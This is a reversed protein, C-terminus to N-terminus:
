NVTITNTASTSGAANSSQLIIKYSGATLNTGYTVATATATVDYVYYGSYSANTTTYIQWTYSLGGSGTSTAHVTFPRTGSTVDTTFSAVPPSVTTIYNSRVLTETVGSGTGTFTVTYPGVNPYYNTPSAVTSSNGDGFNWNYSTLNTNLTTFVVKLGYGFNTTKVGANTVVNIVNTVAPNGLVTSATFGAVPYESLVKTEADSLLLPIFTPNHVGLSGDNRVMYTNFRAQRIVAPLKVQNTSAPGANTIGALVGPATFEWANQLSKNYDAVSLYNTAKDQAWQNLLMVLNRISNTRTAQTVQWTKPSGHCQICIHTDMEFSHGTVNNNADVAYSPVHCASCQNTNPGGSRPTIGSHTHYIGLGNTILSNTWVTKANTTNLYDPQLIGILINYQPSNHPARSYGTINTTLGTVIALNTKTLVNTAPVSGVYVPLSTSSVVVNTYYTGNTFTVVSNTSYYVNTVYTDTFGYNTVTTVSSNTTLGYALGDWRAGRTNHCQGCVNVNPDYLSSFTTNMYYANGMSDYRKDSLSPMTFFNSSWTPNRLQQTQYIPINNTVRNTVGAVINTVYQISFGTLFQQATHPDHCVACTPGWAGADNATPLVLPNTVGAQRNAYDNLMAMRAAGSHCVGCSTQRDYGTAYNTSNIIGTAPNTAVVGTLSNTSVYYGQSVWSVGKIVLTITNSYYAGSNGGYKIDDNVQAHLSGSYEEYTPHTAGQHCGGCIMPDISVAPRIVAHDSNAHWGAPGHCNECGVNKLNANTSPDWFGTAQHYGVTLCATSYNSLAYPDTYAGAHATASYQNYTTPHCQQCNAAGFYGNLQNLRFAYSNTPDPNPAKVSWAFDTAETSVVPFWTGNTGLNLNKAEVTSWGRMGYWSFTDNTTTHVESIIAGAPVGGATLTPPHYMDARSVTGFMGGLALTTALVTVARHM